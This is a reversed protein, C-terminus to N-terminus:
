SQSNNSTWDMSRGGAKQRRGGAVQRRGGAEQRRGGAEQRRGGAEQRRGGTLKLIGVIQGIKPPASRATDHVINMHTNLKNIDDFIHSCIRCKHTDSLKITKYVSAIQNEVKTKSPLEVNCAKLTEIHIDEMLRTVDAEYNNRYSCM